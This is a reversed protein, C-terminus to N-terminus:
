IVSYHLDQKNKCKNMQTGLSALLQTDQTDLFHHQITIQSPWFFEPVIQIIDNCLCKVM